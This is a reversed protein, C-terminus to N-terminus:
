KGLVKNEKREWSWCVWKHKAWGWISSVFLFEFDWKGDWHGLLFLNYEENISLLSFEWNQRTCIFVHVLAFEFMTKEKVPLYPNMGKPNLVVEVMGDKDCAFCFNRERGDYDKKILQRVRILCLPCVLWRQTYAPPMPACDGPLVALIDAWATASLMPEWRSEVPPLAKESM